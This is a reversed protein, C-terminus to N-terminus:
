KRPIKAEARGKMCGNVAFIIRGMEFDGDFAGLSNSNAPKYKPKLWKELLM